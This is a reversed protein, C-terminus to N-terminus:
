GDERGSNDLGFSNNSAGRHSRRAATKTATPM